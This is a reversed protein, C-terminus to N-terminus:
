VASFLSHSSACAELSTFLETLIDDKQYSYTSMPVPFIENGTSNSCLIASDVAILSYYSIERRRDFTERSKKVINIVASQKM